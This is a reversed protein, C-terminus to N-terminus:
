ERPNVNRGYGAISVGFFQRLVVPSVDVGEKAFLLVMSTEGEVDEM